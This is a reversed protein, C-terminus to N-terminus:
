NPLVLNTGKEILNKVPAFLNEQQKEVSYQLDSISLNGVIRGTKNVVPCGNLHLEALKKFAEM